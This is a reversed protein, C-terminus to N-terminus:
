GIDNNADEPNKPPYHFSGPKEYEEFGSLVIIANTVTNGPNRWRHTLRATFLLSDGPNLTLLTGEVEYELTGRLCMVFESGTHVMKEQGSEAGSELTVMFPQMRGMFSEGGLGEWVGLPFPVHTRSAVSRFVIPEVAEDQRFLATIPVNLADTLRYLTSVSPSTLGREIMSLANASLGSIRGLERISIGREERLKKLLQGVYVSPAERDFM